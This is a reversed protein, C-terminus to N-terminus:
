LKHPIYFETGFPTDNAEEVIGEKQTNIINAFQQSLEEQKLKTTLANLWRLSGKESSPLDPHNGIWPLGSQYWGQENRVLQEQFEAYVCAQDHEFRRAGPCGAPM